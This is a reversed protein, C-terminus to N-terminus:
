DQKVAVVVALAAVVCAAKAAVVVVTEMGTGSVIDRVPLLLPEKCARTSTPSPARTVGILKSSPM